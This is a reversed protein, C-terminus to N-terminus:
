GSGMHSEPFPPVKELIHFTFFCFDMVELYMRDGPVPFERCAM